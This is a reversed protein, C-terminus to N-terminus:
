WLNLLHFLNNSIAKEIMGRNGDSGVMGNKRQTRQARQPQVETEPLFGGIKGINPNPSIRIKREMPSFDGFM